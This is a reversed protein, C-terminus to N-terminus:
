TNSLATGDAFDKPQIELRLGGRLSKQCYTGPAENGPKLLYLVPTCQASHASHSFYAIKSGNGGIALAAAVVVSDRHM